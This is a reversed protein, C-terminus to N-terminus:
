KTEGNQLVYMVKLWDHNNENYVKGAVTIQTHQQNTLFNMFKQDGSLAYGTQENVYLVVFTFPENGTIGIPGSVTIIGEEQPVTKVWQTTVTEDLGVINHPVQINRAKTATKGAPDTKLNETDKVEKTACSFLFILSISLLSLRYIKEM